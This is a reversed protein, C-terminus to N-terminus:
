LLQINNAFGLESCSATKRSLFDVPIVLIKPPPVSKSTWIFDPIISGSNITSIFFMGSILSILSYFSPKSIPAATEPESKLLKGLNFSNAGPIASAKSRIPYAWIWPLHVIAPLIHLADGAASVMGANLTDFQLTLIIPGFPELSSNTLLIGIEGPFFEKFSPSNIFDIIM